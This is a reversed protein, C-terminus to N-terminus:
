KATKDFGRGAAIMLPTWGRSFANPDANRELLLRVTAPSAIAWSLPTTGQCSGRGPIDPDVGSNLQAQVTVLDARAAAVHIRHLGAADFGASDFYHPLAGTPKEADKKHHAGKKAAQTKWKGKKPQGASLPEFHSTM